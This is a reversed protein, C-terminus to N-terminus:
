VREREREREGERQRETDGRREREKDRERMIKKNKNISGEEAFPWYVSVPNRNSLEM